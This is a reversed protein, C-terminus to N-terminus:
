TRIEAPAGSIRVSSEGHKEETGELSTWYQVYSPSYGSGELDKGIIPYPNCCTMRERELFTAAVVVWSSIEV